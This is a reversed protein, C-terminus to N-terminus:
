KLDEIWKELDSNRWAVSKGIHVPQPFENKGLLKYLQARSIGVIKLVAPLRLLYDKM